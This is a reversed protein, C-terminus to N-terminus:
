RCAALETARTDIFGLFRQWVDACTDAHQDATPFAFRGGLCFGVAVVAACGADRLAAIGTAVDAYLGNRRLEGLHRLVPFDAQRDRAVGDSRGFYDIAVTTHGHEAFRVALQDYFARLGRNDPLLLV